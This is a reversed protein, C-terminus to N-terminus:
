QEDDALARRIYARARQWNREVTRVPVNLTVSTEKVSLGAFYRCEVVQAMRPDIEEIRHMAADIALVALTDDASSVALDDINLADVGSGRKTSIRKRAHDVLLHRMVRGAVRFFHAQDNWQPSSSKMRVFAENVIATTSLTHGAREGSLQYRALQKLEPYIEAVLKDLEVHDAGDLADPLEGYVNKNNKETM